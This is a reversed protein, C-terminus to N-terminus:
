SHKAEVAAVREHLSVMERYVTDRLGAVETRVQVIETRLESRSKDIDSRLDSRINQIEARLESRSKDIEVRLDSRTKEVEANTKDLSARLQDFGVELRATRANANIWALIVLVVSGVSPLLLSLFQLRNM